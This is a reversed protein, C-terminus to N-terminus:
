LAFKEKIAAFVPAPVMSGVRDAGGYTMFDRLWRSAIFSYVSSCPVLVTEIGSVAKNIQAQQLEAEADSAVRLGKVIVEAGVAKALDVVLLPRNHTVEVNPLHAVSAAIMSSREEDSFLAPAKQPNRVPAIIIHGFLKSASEVVELHGNHFPDFSGPFLATRM